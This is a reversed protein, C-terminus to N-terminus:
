KKKFDGKKIKRRQKRTIILIIRKYTLKQPRKKTKINLYFKVFFANVKM